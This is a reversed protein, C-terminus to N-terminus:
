VLVGVVVHGTMWDPALSVVVGTAGGSLGFRSNYLTVAQGLELLLLDPTGEFQYVTHPVKMLALRRTAETAADTGVLLMTDQQVPDASLKYTTKTASDSATRTLWETAFLDKDQAPITTQLGPQVTWNRCYGLTVSAVVVTREVIQLTHQVMQDGTIVTPTGGPPLAIQILRLKGARSMVLQAGVSAALSQCTTLVNESNGVYVGVPQPNATDFAALNTADLDGSVFQNATTGFGTVIRQVLTSITNYYTAPKDGQVSVTIAGAPAAALTFKGTSATVTATVPMGNDRVEIVGEIAGGHVQYELTAPNTLLPTINHVEGFALPILAGQNPTTGGLLTTSISTNLRQLKDRLKLGLKDRSKSDIDDIVGDFIIRFDSRAWRPDGIFAQVHRGVWIDSLWGDRSGDQNNIEIDGTSLGAQATLSIQETFTVGNALIPLYVTNAPTDAAGTVYARTSLYRTIESGSVNVMAEMLVTRISSPDVLWAAFDADTM